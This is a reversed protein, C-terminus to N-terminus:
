VGAALLETVELVTHTEIEDKAKLGDELMTM